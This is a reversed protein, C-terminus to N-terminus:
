MSALPSTGQSPFRARTQVKRTTQSVSELAAPIGIATLAVQVIMAGTWVRGFRLTARVAALTRSTRSCTRARSSAAGAAAVADGRRCGRPWLRLPHHLSRPRADDLLARRGHGPQRPRARVSLARDAALLGVARRCPRWCAAGRRVATRRHARPEGRAGVARRDGGRADRHARLHAHGREPVRDILVLLVPLNRLRSCRSTWIMLHTGGLPVVRPRLHAHTHRSRRQRREGPVRM